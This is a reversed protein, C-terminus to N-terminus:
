CPRCVECLCDKLDHCRVPCLLVPTRRRARNGAMTRSSATCPRDGPSICTHPVLCLPVPQVGGVLRSLGGLVPETWGAADGREHEPRLHHPRRGEREQVVYQLSSGHVALIGHIDPNPDHAPRVASGRIGGLPSRGTRPTPAFSRRSTTTSCALRRDNWELVWREHRDPVSRRASEPPEPGLAARIEDLKARYTAMGKDGLARAYVVPDLEFYDVEGDFQFKMMWDILRGAPVRAAAAVKPHLDLLRRCADGIIGSSDDARAIVKIASALAKHTVAYAEAPETTPM